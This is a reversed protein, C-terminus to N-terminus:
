SLLLSEDVKIRINSARSTSTTSGKIKLVDGKEVTIKGSFQTTGSLKQVDNIYASMNSAYLTQAFVGITGSIEITKTLLTQNSANANLTPEAKYCLGDLDSYNSPASACTVEIDGGSPRLYFFDTTDDIFIFEYVGEDLETVGETGGIDSYLSYTTGDDDIEVTITTGSSIDSPVYIKIIELNDKKFTDDTDINLNRTEVTASNFYNLIDNKQIGNSINNLNTANIAPSSGNVFTTKSFKAM